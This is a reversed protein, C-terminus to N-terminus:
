SRFNDKPMFHVVKHSVDKAQTLADITDAISRLKSTAIAKDLQEQQTPENAYQLVFRAVGGWKRFLEEVKAETVEPDFISGRCRKLEELSWPPLYFFTGKSAKSVLNWTTDRPSSLLITKANVISPAEGDVVYYINPNRLEPEFGKNQIGSIQVGQPSFLIRSDEERGQYVITEGRRVLLLLILFGFHSKCIGPTGLILTTILTLSINSSTTIM